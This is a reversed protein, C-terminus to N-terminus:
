VSTYHLFSPVAPHSHRRVLLHLAVRSASLPLTNELAGSQAIYLPRQRSRIPWGTHPSATNIPQSGRARERARVNWVKQPQQRMHARIPPTRKNELLNWHHPGWLNFMSQLKMYGWLKGQARLHFSNLGRSFSNNSPAWVSNSLFQRISHNTLSHEEIM